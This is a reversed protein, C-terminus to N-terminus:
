IATRTRGNGAMRSPHVLRTGGTGGALPDAQVDRPACGYERRFARAFHSADAFGWRHATETVSADTTELEERARTLRRTRAAAAVTEGARAFARYVTRESVGHAEALIRATIPRDLHGDIWWCLQEHLETDDGSPVSGGQTAAVLLDLALNRASEVTGPPSPSGSLLDLYGRLMRWASSASDVVVGGGALRPGGAARWVPYPVVLTRKLLRKPVEFWAPQASDWILADGPRLQLSGVGLGVRETGSRAVTVAIRRQDARRVLMEDRVGLCADCRVDVLALDELWRRRVAARFSRPETGQRLQVAMDLHTRSLLDQWQAERQPAAIRQLDVFEDTLAM